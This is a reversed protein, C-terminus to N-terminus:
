ATNKNARNRSLGILIKCIVQKVGINNEEDELVIM